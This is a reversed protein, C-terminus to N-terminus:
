TDAYNSQRTEEQRRRGQRVNGGLVVGAAFFVFSDNVRFLPDDMLGALLFFIFLGAIWRDTRPGSLACAMVGGFFVTFGLCGLLGTEVLRGLFINHAHKVSQEYGPFRERWEKERAIRRAKHCERFSKIGHGFLPAETFASWGAEWIPLRSRFTPDQFPDALVSYLRRSSESEPFMILSFGGALIFFIPILLLRKRFRRAAAPVICFLAAPLAFLMARTNTLFFMGSLVVFCFGYAGRNSARRSMLCGTLSWLMAAACYQALRSPHVAFLKLRDGQWLGTADPWLRGAVFGLLASVLLAAALAGLFAYRHGPLERGLIIGSFICAAWLITKTASGVTEPHLATTFAVAAFMLGAGATAVKGCGSPPIRPPMKWAMILAPITVFVAFLTLDSHLPLSAHLGLVALWLMVPLKASWARRKPVREMPFFAFRYKLASM